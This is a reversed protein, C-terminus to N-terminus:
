QFGAGLASLLHTTQFGSGSHLSTLLTKAMGMPSWPAAGLTSANKEGQFLVCTLPLAIIFGSRSLVPM